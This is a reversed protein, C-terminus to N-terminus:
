AHEGLLWVTVAINDTTGTLLDVDLTDGENVNFDNFSSSGANTGANITVTGKSVGNVTLAFTAPTALNGRAEVKLAKGVFPFPSPIANAAVNIGVGPLPKRIALAVAVKNANPNLQFALTAM